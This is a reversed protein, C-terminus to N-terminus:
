KCNNNGPPGPMAGGCPWGTGSSCYVYACSNLTSAIGGSQPQSGNDPAIINCYKGPPPDPCCSQQTVCTPTFLGMAHRPIPGLLYAGAIVLLAAVITLTNTTKM